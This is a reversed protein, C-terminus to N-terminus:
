EFVKDNKSATKGFVKSFVSLISIPRYNEIVECQGQKYVPVVSACLFCLLHVIVPAVTKLVKIPIGDLGSSNKIPMTKVVDLIKAKDIDALYTTWQVPVVKPNISSESPKVSTSEALKTEVLIQNNGIFGYKYLNELKIPPPSIPTVFIHSSKPAVFKRTNLFFDSYCYFLDQHYEVRFQFSTAQHRKYPSCLAIIKKSSWAAELKQENNMGASIINYNKNVDSKTKVFIHDIDTATTDTKRTATNIFSVYGRTNLINLYDNTKSNDQKLLDINIDGLYIDIDETQLDNLYKDLNQTYDDVDLSPPRYIATILEMVNITVHSMITRTTVLYKFIM